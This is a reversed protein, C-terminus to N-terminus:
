YGVRIVLKKDLNCARILKGRELFITGSLASNRVSLILADGQIKVSCPSDYIRKIYEKVAAMENPPTFNKDALIDQLSDM